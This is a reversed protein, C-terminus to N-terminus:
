WPAGPVGAYGRWADRACGQLGSAEVGEGGGEGAKGAGFTGWIRGRGCQCVRCRVAPGSHAGRAAHVAADAGSGWCTTYRDDCLRCFLRLAQNLAIRLKGCYVNHSYRAGRGHARRMAGRGARLRGDPSRCRQSPVALPTRGGRGGRRAGLAPFGLGARSQASPREKATGHRRPARARGHRLPPRRSGAPPRM